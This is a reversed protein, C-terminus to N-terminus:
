QRFECLHCQQQSHQRVDTNTAWHYDDSWSGGPWRVAQIGALQFAPVIASTTPDYWAAMNM